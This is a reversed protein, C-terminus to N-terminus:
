EVVRNQGDDVFQWSDAGDFFRIPVGRIDDPDMSRANVVRRPEKGVGEYPTTCGCTVCHYFEICRDNWMYRGTAGPEFIVNVEDPRHYAWLV